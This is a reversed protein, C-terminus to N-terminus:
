EANLVKQVAARVEAETVELKPQGVKAPLMAVLVVQAEVRKEQIERLIRMVKAEARLCDAMPFGSREYAPDSSPTSDHPKDARSKKAM